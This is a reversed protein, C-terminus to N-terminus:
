AAGVEEWDGYGRQHHWTRRYWGGKGDHAEPNYYTVERGIIIGEGEPWLFTDPQGYGLWGAPRAPAPQPKTQAEVPATPLGFFAAFAEATARAAGSLFAETRHAKAEIPNTHAGYEVLVRTCHSKIPATARFVGLRSGQLGVGTRKESMRGDGFRPFGTAACVKAVILPILRDRADTDEDGTADPYIGFVGRVRPDAVGQTHTELLADAKWGENAWRVAVAAATDLAGPFDGDGPTTDADPGDPTIVRVDFGLRTLEPGIREVLEGTTVYEYANGGSTNHHGALLAIKPMTPGKAQGPADSRTLRAIEALVAAIYRETDNESSPAWIPIIERVTYANAYPKHDFFRAVTSVGGDVWNAYRSFSGVRGVVTGLSPVGFSPERTNGWSKSVTATGERGMGSEHRFLALLFAPSLGRALCYSYVARAEGDSVPSKAAHLATLFAAETMDPAVGKARYDDM